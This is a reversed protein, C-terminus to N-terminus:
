SSSRRAGRATTSTKNPSARGAPSSSQRKKKVPAASKNEYSELAKREVAWGAELATIALQGTLEDGPKFQRPYVEDEPVGKFARTCIIDTM